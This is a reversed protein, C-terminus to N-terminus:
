PLVKKTLIERARSEIEEDSMQQAAIRGENRQSDTLGGAEAIIRTIMAEMEEEPLLDEPHHNTWIRILKKIEVRKESEPKQMWAYALTNKEWDALVPPELKDIRKKLTETTNM